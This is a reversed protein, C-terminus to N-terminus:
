MVTLHFEPLVVWVSCCQTRTGQRKCTTTKFTSACNEAGAKKMEFANGQCLPHTTQLNCTFPPVNFKEHHLLNFSTHCVAARKDMYTYLCMLITPCGHKIYQGCHFTTNQENGHYTFTTISLVFLKSCTNKAESM